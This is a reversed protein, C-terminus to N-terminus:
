FKKTALVTILKTCKLPLLTKLISDIEYIKNSVVIGFISFFQMGLPFFLNANGTCFFFNYEWHLFNNKKFFIANGTCFIYFFNCKWHWCYFCNTNRTGFIFLIANGTCFFLFKMVLAFFFFNENGIVFMQMGMSVFSFFYLFKTNRLCFLSNKKNKASPICIKKIKPM